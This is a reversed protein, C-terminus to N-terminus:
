SVRKCKPTCRTAGLPISTKQNWNSLGFEPEVFVVNKRNLMRWAIRWAFRDDSEGDNMPVVMPDPMDDVGVFAYTSGSPEYVDNHYVRCWVFSQPTAHSRIEDVGSTRDVVCTEQKHRLAKQITLNIEEIRKKTTM